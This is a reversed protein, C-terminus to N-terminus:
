TMPSSLFEWELRWEEAFERLERLLTPEPLACGMEVLASVALGAVGRPAILADAIQLGFAALMRLRDEQETGGGSSEIANVLRIDVKWMALTLAGVLHQLKGCLRLVATEGQESLRGGKREAYAGVEACLVLDGLRSFFGALYALDEFVGFAKAFRRAALGAAYSRRWAEVGFQALAETGKFPKKANVSWAVSRVGEAGMKVMALDISTQKAGMKVGGSAAHLLRIVIEPDAQFLRNADKLKFSPRAMLTSIKAVQPGLRPISLAKQMVSKRLHEAFLEEEKSFSTAVEAEAKDAILAYYYLVPDEIKTVRQDLQRSHDTFQSM